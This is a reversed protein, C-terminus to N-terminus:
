SDVGASMVRTIKEQVASSIFTNVSTGVTASARIIQKHIEPTTRFLVKGQYSKEPEFGDEKAWSLYDDVAGQFDKTAEEVTKGAFTIGDKNLGIVHGYIVGEAEDINAVGVYGKYTM